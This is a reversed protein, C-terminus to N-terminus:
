FLERLVAALMRAEEERQGGERWAVGISRGVLPEAFQRVAVHAGVAAGAEAAIKPLLTVGLGGGVMQVL